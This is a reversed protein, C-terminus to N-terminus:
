NDIKDKSNTISDNFTDKLGAISDNLDDLKDIVSIQSNFLETMRDLVMDPASYNADMRDIMDSIATVVLDNMTMDKDSAIEKLRRKLRIPLYINLRDKPQM